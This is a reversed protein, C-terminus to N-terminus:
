LIIFTIDLPTKIDVVLECEIATKTEVKLIYRFKKTKYYGQTFIDKFDKIAGGVAESNHELKITQQM